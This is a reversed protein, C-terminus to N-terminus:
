NADIGARREAVGEGEESEQELVVPADEAHQVMDGRGGVSTRLAPWTTAALQVTWRFRHNRGAKSSRNAKATFSTRSRALAFKVLERNAGHDWRRRVLRWWAGQEEKGVWGGGQAVWVMREVWLCGGLACGHGRGDSLMRSALMM